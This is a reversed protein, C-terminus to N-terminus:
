GSAEAAAAAFGELLGGWGGPSDLAARAADAGAGLRELHRHELEVRTAGPGDPLFRVEVETVLDPDFRWQADIQWALVLHAPPEWVLVRGWDCESGDEGREFWRGGARPELVAERLPAQGIKHTAPWWRAIGTTFVEFARAPAARVQVAKRVPAPTITATTM